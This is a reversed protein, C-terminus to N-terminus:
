SGGVDDAPEVRPTGGTQGPSLLARGPARSRAATAYPEPWFELISSVSGQDDFGFFTIGTEVADGTTFRIRSAGTQGDGIAQEVALHWDGPFEAAFRICADRGRVRERSQPWECVINDAILAGLADWDRAEMAAWYREIVRAATERGPSDSTM